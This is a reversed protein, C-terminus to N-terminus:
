VIRGLVQYVSTNDPTVAWATDVTAVKTSGDYATIQRTQGAGTGSTISIAAKAYLDNTASAGSRLTITTSTGTQATGTDAILGAWGAAANTAATANGAIAGVSADIRGGVLAAPLRAQIDAIETDVFNGVADISTKLNGATQATGAVHTTNVEPRGSAFTGASGGFQTVNTKVVGSTFDLQGVGTGASLLVSAGIDRATQATGSGTPGLKVTTADALGASDIVVTRGLTAPQLPAMGMISINDGAAVTFTAGAALTVTKTSGVYDSILVRASQVASAIDHIIAWQGNLADDEAPGSTLTFSTQTSLTAITTDFWSGEYGITFRAIWGGTIVGDVTVADIAMLYESGAAFFNATTNDALDIIAVHKGTKADFDTTATFGVTSARETTNGDKYILIDAAAYNTMTISSGDDKDFTNFPIRITSGPRVKGLNLM